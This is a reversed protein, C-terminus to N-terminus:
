YRKKILYMITLVISVILIVSFLIIEFIIEGSLNYSILIIGYDESFGLQSSKDWFLGNFVQLFHFFWGIVSLSGLVFIILKTKNKRKTENISKDILEITEKAKIKCDIKEIM